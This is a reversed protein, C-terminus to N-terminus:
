QRIVYSTDRWLVWPINKTFNKLKGEVPSSDRYMNQIENRAPEMIITPAPCNLQGAGPQGTKGPRPLSFNPFMLICFTGSDIMKKAPSKVLDHPFGTIAPHRTSIGQPFLPIFHSCLFFNNIIGPQTFVTENKLVAVVRSAPKTFKDPSKRSYGVPNDEGNRLSSDQCSGPKCTCPLGRKAKRNDTFDTDRSTCFRLETCNVQSPVTSILSLSRSARPKRCSSTSIATAAVCLFTSSRIWTNRCPRGMGSRVPLVTMKVSSPRAEPNVISAAILLMRVFFGARM